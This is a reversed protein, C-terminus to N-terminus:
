FFLIFFVLNIKPINAIRIAVNEAKGMAAWFVCGIVVLGLRAITAVGTEEM